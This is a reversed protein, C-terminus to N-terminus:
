GLTTNGTGGALEAGGNGTLLDAAGGRRRRLDDAMLAQDRADDRTVAAIPAPSKGPTKILGLAKLPAKFIKGVVAM